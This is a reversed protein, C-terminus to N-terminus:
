QPKRWPVMKQVVAASFKEQLIKNVCLDPSDGAEYKQNGTRGIGGM